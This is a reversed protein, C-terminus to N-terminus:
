PPGNKSLQKAEMKSDSSRFFGNKEVFVGGGRSGAFNNIIQVYAVKIESDELHLGGGDYYAM